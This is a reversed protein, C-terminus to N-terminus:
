DIFLKIVVSTLILVFLAGLSLAAFLAEPEQGLSQQPAIRALKATKRKNTIPVSKVYVPTVFHSNAAALGREIAIGFDNAPSYSRLRQRHPSQLLGRESATVALTASPRAHHV